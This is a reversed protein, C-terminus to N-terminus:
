KSGDIIVGKNDRLKMYLEVVIYNLPLTNNGDTVFLGYYDDELGYSNSISAVLEKLQKEEDVNM